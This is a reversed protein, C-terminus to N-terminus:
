KPIELYERIAEHYHAIHEVISFVEKLLPHKIAYSRSIMDGLLETSAWPSKEPDIVRCVIEPKGEFVEVGISVRDAPTSDDAWEGIAIAFNINKDSHSHSWGAYYVAYANGNKYIFGHGISSEKECCHCISSSVNEGVELNFESVDKGKAM